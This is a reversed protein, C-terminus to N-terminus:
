VAVTQLGTFFKRLKTREEFNMRVVEFTLQERRAERV